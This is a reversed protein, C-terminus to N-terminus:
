ATEIWSKVKTEYENSLRQATALDASEANVHFVPRARDPNLLVSTHAGLNAPFVKVGEVLQRPMHETDKMLHRMVRGKAHWPCPINKKVFTLRPVSGDLEGLKKNTLAMCEMIKAVSYMADSAFLFEPFIFGGKTGGVFLHGKTSAADMLALHSDPTRVVEFHHEVAVLDIEGSAAIPVAVRKMDPHSLAMYKTVLTLLRDSDISVGHEDVVFIKEAGADLMIGVDYRLSTVVYSLQRLSEDFQEKTRTL